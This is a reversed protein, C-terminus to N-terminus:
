STSKLFAHECSTTQEWFSFGPPVKLLDTATILRICLCVHVDDSWMMFDFCYSNGCCLLDFSTCRAVSWWWLVVHQQKQPLNTQVQWPKRKLKSVRSFSHFLPIWQQSSPVCFLMLSKLQDKTLPCEHQWRSSSESSHCLLLMTDEYTSPPPAIKPLRKLSSTVTTHQFMNPFVLDVSDSRFSLVCTLMEWFFIYMDGFWLFLQSHSTSHHWFSDPIILPSHTSWWLAVPSKQNRWLYKPKWARYLM